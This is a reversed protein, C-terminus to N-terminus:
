ARTVSENEFLWLAKLMRYTIDNNSQKIRKESLLAQIENQNIIFEDLQNVMKDNLPIWNARSKPDNGKKITQYIDAM